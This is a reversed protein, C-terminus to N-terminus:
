PREGASITPEFGAQPMSTKRNHINHKTLYLDRRRVSWEDLPTRGVTARRQTHDLFRTRSSAIAGSSPQLICVWLPNYRWFSFFFRASIYCQTPHFSLNTVSYHILFSIFILRIIQPLAMNNSQRLESFGCLCWKLYGTNLRPHQVQIVLYVTSNWVLLVKLM